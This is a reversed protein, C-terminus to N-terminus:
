NLIKNNKKTYVDIDNGLLSIGTAGGDIFHNTLLFGKLGFSASVVGACILFIDKLYRKVLLWFQKYAKALLYPSAEDLKKSKKLTTNFIVQTWFPNM